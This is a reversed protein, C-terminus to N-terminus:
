QSTEGIPQAVAFAGLLEALLRDIQGQSWLTAEGPTFDVGNRGTVSFRASAGDLDVEFWVKGDQDAILTHM